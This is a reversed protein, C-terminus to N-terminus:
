DKRLREYTTKIVVELANMAETSLNKDARFLAMAQALPEAGGVKDKGEPPSIFDDAKLGSWAVLAALSDLDPRKGQAMRTLTSASVGAQKAVKKWTFRKAQRQSDLAAYFAEANFHGRPMAGETIQYNCDIPVHPIMAEIANYCDALM